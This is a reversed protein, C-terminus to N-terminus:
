KPRRFSTLILKKRERKKKNEKQKCISSTAREWKNSARCTIKELSLAESGGSLRSCFAHTFGDSLTTAIYESCSQVSSFVM